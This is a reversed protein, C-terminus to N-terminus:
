MFLRVMKLRLRNIRKAEKVVCRHVQNLGGAIGLQRNVQNLGGATGFQRDGLQIRKQCWRLYM